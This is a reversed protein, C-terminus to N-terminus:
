LAEGLKKVQNQFQSELLKKVVDRAIELTEAITRGQATSGQVDNALKSFKEIAANITIYGDAKPAALTAFSPNGSRQTKSNQISASTNSSASKVSSPLNISIRSPVNTTRLISPLGRTKIRNLLLAEAASTKTKQTCQPTFIFVLTLFFISLANRNSNKKQNAKTLISERLLKGM